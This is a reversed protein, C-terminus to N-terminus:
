ETARRFLKTPPVHGELEKSFNNHHLMCWDPHVSTVIQHSFTTYINVNYNKQLTLTERMEYWNTNSTQYCVTFRKQQMMWLSALPTTYNQATIIHCFNFEVRDVKNFTSQQQRFRCCFWSTILIDSPCRFTTMRYCMKLQTFYSTVINNITGVWHIEEVSTTM